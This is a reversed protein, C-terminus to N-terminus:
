WFLALLGVNIAVNYHKATYLGLFRYRQRSFVGVSQSKAYFQNLPSFTLVIEPERIGSLHESPDHAAASAKCVHPGAPGSRAPDGAAQPVADFTYGQWAGKEWM